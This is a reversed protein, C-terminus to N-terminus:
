SLWLAAKKCIKRFSQYEPFHQDFNKQYRVQFEEIFHHFDARYENILNDVKAVKVWQCVRAFKETEYPGFHSNNKMLALSEEMTSVLDASALNARLYEPEKLYSVDLVMKVGKQKQESIFQTLQGFSSISLINYTCMIVIQSAPSHVHILDINNLFQTLNLGNRIFTAQEGFGDLSVFFSFSKIANKAELIKLQSLLRELPASNYSLNTNISLELHPAPNSALFDLVKFTDASLLPEGGTIRFHKLESYIQPFYKWFADLYPNPENIAALKPMRHNKSHTVPYAGWKKMEREISTSVDAMCYLCSLNCDSNFMVELYTPAVDANPDLMLTAELKDFAWDDTSKIFRDSKMENQPTDEINWCYNCEDPRIGNQMKQRQEKKFKTNHLASVSLQLEELPITHREPHHCSHNQGRSLDITVQYWKALCFGNPALAIKKLREEKPNM